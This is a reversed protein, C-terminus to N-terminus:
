RGSVASATARISCNCAAPGPGSAKLKRCAKSAVPAGTDDAAPRFLGEGAAVSSGAGIPSAPRAQDIRWQEFTGSPEAVVEIAMKAHELGCYEACQGWFRGPRNAALWALNTQGPIMDTKGTLQPVWFSHIANNNHLRVLVKRGVPIHIENVTAVPASGTNAAYDVQWWWQRGTIDISGLHLNARQRPPVKHDPRRCEKRRM